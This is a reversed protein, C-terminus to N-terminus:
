RGKKNLFLMQKKLDWRAKKEQDSMGGQGTGRLLSAFEIALKAQNSKIKLYPLIKALLIAIQKGCLSWRWIIKWEPNRDRCSMTGGAQGQVWKLVDYDTMEIQLRLSWIDVDLKNKSSSICICGEGDILGALYARDTKIM